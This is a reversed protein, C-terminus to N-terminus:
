HARPGNCFTDTSTGLCFSRKGVGHARLPSVVQSLSSLGAQMGCKRWADRADFGQSSIFPSVPLLPPFSLAARGSSLPTSWFFGQQAQHREASNCSSDGLSLAITLFQLFPKAMHYPSFFLQKAVYLLLLQYFSCPPFLGVGITGAQQRRQKPLGTDDHIM